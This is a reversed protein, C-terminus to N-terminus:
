KLVFPFIIQPGIATEPVSPLFGRIGLIFDMQLPFPEGNFPTSRRKVPFREGQMNQSQLLIPFREGPFPPLERQIPFLPYDMPFSQWEM